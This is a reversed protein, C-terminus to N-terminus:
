TARESLAVRELHSPVRIEWGLQSEVHRRLADSAAPEGHTVFTTRPPREFGRLWRLIELHDAHASLGDLVVVEARITVDGGHIRVSEAGEAIDRGRTGGAQFGALVITNRPDPALTKLHHLVRGGTLMGSASIIVASERRADLAKSEEVSRVYRASAFMERCDGPDLRHDRPHQAYLASVDTAMPSNLYIPVDPIRGSSRLRHLHYLLLQARGVAFAPILVIGGRSVTRTVVAQLIEAPDDPAHTRNGYTSEVVLWDAERVTAPDLMLPDGFRGLDGTFHLTGGADRLTIGAAGLIHGAQRFRAIAGGGLDLDTEYEVPRLQQLCAEAEETTYLALAPRHKSFGRKNAYAAQEEQLRASDPLMIGCLDRTASTSYIPGRFGQRCLRPLWGSHDIHAHTLLVADITAPDIPLEAWNRLRLQKYGQFLGCDVLVRRTGIGVLSKSGTVTGAAGLFVIDM